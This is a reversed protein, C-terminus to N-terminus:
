VSQDTSSTRRPASPAAESSRSSTTWIESNVTITESAAIHREQPTSGSATTPWECPSIAAAYTAPASERSSAACTTARRASRRALTTPRPPMSDTASGATSISFRSAAHSPRRQRATRLAGPVFTTLPSRSASASNAAAHAM